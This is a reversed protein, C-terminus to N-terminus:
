GSGAPVAEAPESRAEPAPAADLADLVADADARQEAPPPQAAFTADDITRGVAALRPDEYRRALAAAYTTATEHEERPRGVRGGLVDLRRDASAAWGVPRVPRRARARRLLLRAPGVLLAVGGAVLLIVVLHERIWQGVTPEPRDDGALPVDATPDFPVWGVEPFWVEAWAHADRERVTFLGTVPDRDGPVYGTVLRAPIGNARALVVLSSAIQECWGQEADFLFHDVVDVGRPALPADLSYEVRDGMWAELALVKDYQTTAGATVEAAAALVRETAVPPQAYQARIPAPIEGDVSRLQDATVPIRRSVVSYTAGRGLPASQLTGDARQRLPRDIQVEVATPVAYVVDSYPAELRFRQEVVDSGRAGLDDPALRPRDPGALPTYRSDSRTWRAGDWVDFTQGRWFTARDTEVTFVVEDTLEPRSTMDLADTARVISSDSVMPDLTAGEGPEVANGVYPLLVPALLLAVLLVLGAVIGASRLSSWPRVPSADRGDPGGLAPEAAVGVRDALVLGFVGAVVWLLLGQGGTALSGSILGFRVLGLASVLLLVRALLRLSLSPLGIMALAGLCFGLVYGSTSELRTAFAAQVAISVSISVAVTLSWLLWPPCTQRDAHATPVVRGSM